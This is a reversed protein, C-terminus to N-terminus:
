ARHKNLVENQKQKESLRLSAFNQIDTNHFIKDYKM